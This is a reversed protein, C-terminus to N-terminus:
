SGDLVELTDLMWWDTWGDELVDEFGVATVLLSWEEVRADENCVVVSM